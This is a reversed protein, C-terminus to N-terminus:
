ALIGLAELTMVIFTGSMLSWIGSLVTAIM